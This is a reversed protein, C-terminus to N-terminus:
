AVRGWISEVRVPNRWYDRACGSSCFPDLDAIGRAYRASREPNRPGLCVLCRGDARVPPDLEPRPASLLDGRGEGSPNFPAILPGNDPM